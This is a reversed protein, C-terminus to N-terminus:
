DDSGPTGNLSLAVSEVSIDVDTITLIAEGTQPVTPLLPKWYLLKTIMILMEQQRSRLTLVRRSPLLLVM